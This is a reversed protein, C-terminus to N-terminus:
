NAENYMSRKKKKKAKHGGHSGELVAQTVMIDESSINELIKGDETQMNYHTVRLLEEDWNHSIVKAEKIEGDINVGGHKVCYHNPAFVEEDESITKENELEEIIIQKLKTKTIKM